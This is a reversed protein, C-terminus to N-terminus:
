DNEVVDGSELEVIDRPDAFPDAGDFLRYAEATLEDFLEPPCVKRVAERIAWMQRQLVDVQQAFSNTEYEELLEVAKLIDQYKVRAGDETVQELGKAVMLDLVAKTTALKDETYDVLIGREAARKDIIRKIAAEEINLHKDAHREISKRIADISGNLHEDTGKWQRALEVPGHGMVLLQDIIHRKSSKCVNCRPQTIEPLLDRLRPQEDEVVALEKKKYAM